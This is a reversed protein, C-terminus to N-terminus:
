DVNGKRGILLVNSFPTRGWAPRITCHLGRAELRAAIDYAPRFSVREGRNFGIFTFFREEVLTCLSRWGRQSDAERVLLRGGPRVADAARDLIVDQEPVKFYHLLDIVLVTDASEFRQTRVDGHVFKAEVREGGDSDARAARQADAVKREDWDIGVATTVLGLELLLLPLQGRGSGLDLMAGFAGPKDGAIEALLRAMPDTLLKARLYHFRTREAALPSNPSAYRSAVREVARVWAPANGPLRYPTREKTKPLLAMTVLTLAGGCLALALGLVPAGLFLDGICHSFAGAQTLERELRVPAGTRMWAGLQIEATLLAPAFFPNSVNSMVWALAADLQFWVCLGVVLPTHCGFIPISGIFLGIAASAAARPPTTHPGRLTLWARKFEERWPSFDRPTV